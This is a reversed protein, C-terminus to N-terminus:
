RGEGGGAEVRGLIEEPSAIRVLLYQRGGSYRDPGTLVEVAPHDRLIQALVGAGFTDGQLRVRVVGPAAESFERHERTM